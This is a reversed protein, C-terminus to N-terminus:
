QAGVVENYVQVSLVVNRLLHRLMWHKHRALTDGLLQQQAPANTDDCTRQELCQVLLHFQVLLGSVGVGVFSEHAHADTTSQPPPLLRLHVLRHVVTHIMSAYEATDSALLVLLLADQLLPKNHEVAHSQAL